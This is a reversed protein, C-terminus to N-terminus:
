SYGISQKEKILELLQAGLSAKRELLEEWNAQAEEVHSKELSVHSEVDTLESDLQSIKKCIFQIDTKIITTSESVDSYNNDYYEQHMLDEVQKRLIEKRQILEKRESDREEFVHLCSYFISKLTYEDETLSDLKTQLTKIDQEVQEHRQMYTAVKQSQHIIDQRKLNNLEMTNWQTEKMQLDEPTITNLKAAILLLDRISRKDRFLNSKITQLYKSTDVLDMSFIARKIYLLLSISVRFIACWKHKFIFSWVKFLLSFPLTYAFLTLFWKTILISVDFGIEQFHVYLDPIYVKIYDNLIYTYLQLGPIGASWLCTMQLTNIVAVLTRFVNKEIQLQHSITYDLIDNNDDYASSFQSIDPDVECILLAGAVFNMGQCYGISNVYESSVLLVNKLMQQGIGKEDRFLPHLPFTRGIDRSIEGYIGQTEHSHYQNIHSKLKDYMNFCHYNLKDIHLCYNWYKTLNHPPIDNYVLGNIQSNMDQSWVCRLSFIDQITLFPSCLQLIKINDSAM